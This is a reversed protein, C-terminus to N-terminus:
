YLPPQLGRGQMKFLEDVSNFRFAHLREDSQYCFLYNCLHKFDTLTVDRYQILDLDLGPDRGVKVTIMAPGRWGQYAGPCVSTMRRLCQNVESGDNLFNDRTDFHIMDPLEKDMLPDHYITIVRANEEPPLNLFPQVDLVPLNSGERGRRVWVLQPKKDDVPFFIGLFHKDTPSPRSTKDFSAYASCLLKHTRWDSRQCPVSCYYISKCQGCPKANEKYCVICLRDTNEM